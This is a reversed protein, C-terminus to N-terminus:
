KFIQIHDRVEIILYRLNFNIDKFHGKPSANMYFKSVQYEYDVFHACFHNGGFYTCM